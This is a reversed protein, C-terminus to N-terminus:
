PQNEPAPRHSTPTTASPTPGADSRNTPAPPPRLGAVTLLRRARDFGCGLERAAARVSVPGTRGALLALLESDSRVPRAGAAGAQQPPHPGPATAPASAGVATRPVPAAGGAVHVPLPAAPAGSPATASATRTGPQPAGPHPAGPHPVGLHATTRNLPEPPAPADNGAPSRTPAAPADAPGSEHGLLYLLHAVLAVAVAPWAGVGFRLGTPAARVAGALYSAQALGSLGAALIVVAWAHRRGPGQLRAATAYAVLALGDTILPYLWAIPAAVGAASAVEYLGHATAAGAGVAVTLGTAWVANRPGRHRGTV